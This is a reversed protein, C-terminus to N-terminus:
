FHYAARIMPVSATAGKGAAGNTDNGYKNEWYQYAAGVKFKQSIHLVKSLDYMLAVDVFIEPKTKDGFENQGKSSMWTAIGDFNLGTSAIPIGWVAQLAIYPDYTYKHDIMNPQNSEFLALVNFNLYGVVDFMVTPGVVWMQRNSGYDDNKTNWDFGFTLGYGKTVGATYLEKQFIKGFDLTHRYIAYAEQAGKGAANSNPENNSHHLNLHVFNVGYKYTSNHVISFIQKDIDIARGDASNKFPESFEQGYSWILATDSWEAAHSQVIGCFICIAINMKLILKMKNKLM